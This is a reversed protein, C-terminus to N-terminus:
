DNDDNNDSKHQMVRRLTTCTAEVSARDLRRSPRARRQAQCESPSSASTAGPCWAYTTAPLSPSRGTLDRQYAEVLVRLAKDLLTNTHM